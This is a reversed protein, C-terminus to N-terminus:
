QVTGTGGEMSASACEHQAGESDLCDCDRAAARRCVVGRWGSDSGDQQDVDPSDQRGAPGRAWGAPVARGTGRGWWPWRAAPGGAGRFNDVDLKLLSECWDTVSLHSLRSLNQHRMKGLCRPAPPGVLGPPARRAPLAAGIPHHALPGASTPWCSPDPGPRRPLSPRCIGASQSPAGRITWRTHPCRQLACCLLACCSLACM